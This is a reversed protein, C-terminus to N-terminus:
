PQPVLHKKSSPYKSFRNRRNYKMIPGNISKLHENDRREVPMATIKSPMNPAGM